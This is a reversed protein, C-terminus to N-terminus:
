VHTHMYISDLVHLTICVRASYSSNNRTYMIIKSVINVFLRFYDQVAEGDGDGAWLEGAKVLLFARPATIVTSYQVYLVTTSRSYVIGPFVSKFHM